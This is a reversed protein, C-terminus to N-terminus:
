IFYYVEPKRSSAAPRLRFLGRHAKDVAEECKEAWKFDM